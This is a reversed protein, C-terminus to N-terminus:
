QRGAGYTRARCGIQIIQVRCLAFRHLPQITGHQHQGPGPGAFGLCQRRPDHVQQVGTAGARVFDKGHGEGVLRRAFHLLAHPARQALRDLAHWPKAGEM